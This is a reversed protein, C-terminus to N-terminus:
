KQVFIRDVMALAVHHCCKSKDAFVSVEYFYRVCM